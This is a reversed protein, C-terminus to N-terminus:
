FCNDCTYDMKEWLSRIEMLGITVHSSAITNFCDFSLVGLKNWSKGVRLGAWVVEVSKSGVSDRERERM